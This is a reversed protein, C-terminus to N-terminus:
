CPRVRYTGDGVAVACQNTRQNRAVVTGAAAGALAAAITWNRNAQLFDATVIGAAAGALGGVVGRETQTMQECGALALTAAFVSTAFLKTM